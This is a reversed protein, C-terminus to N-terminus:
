SLNNKSRGRVDLLGDMSQVLQDRWAEAEEGTEFNGNATTLQDGQMRWIISHSRGLMYTQGYRKRTLGKLPGASDNTCLVFKKLM